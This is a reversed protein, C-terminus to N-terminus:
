GHKLNITRLTVLESGKWALIGRAGSAGLELVVREAYARERTGQNELVLQM